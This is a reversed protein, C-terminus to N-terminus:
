SPVGTKSWMPGESTPMKGITTINMTVETAVSRSRWDPVSSRSSVVGMPLPSKMIPYATAKPRSAMTCATTAVPNATQTHSRSTAPGSHSSTTTATTSATSPVARPSSALPKARVSNWATCNMGANM